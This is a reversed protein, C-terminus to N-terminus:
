RRLEVDRRREGPAVLDDVVEVVVRLQRPELVAPDVSIRPWPRIVPSRRTVTPSSSISALRATNRASPSAASSAASRRAQVRDVVRPRVALRRDRLLDRVRSTIMPPPTTPTSIACANWVSPLWTVSISPSRRSIGCSSSNAQTCSVSASRSSRRRCGCRGSPPAPRAPRRVARDGDVGVVAAGGVAVHQQDREPALRRGLVDPM